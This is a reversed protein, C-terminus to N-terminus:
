SWYNQKCENVQRIFRNLDRKNTVTCLWDERMIPDRSFLDPLSCAQLRKVGLLYLIVYLILIFKLFGNRDLHMPGDRGTENVWKPPCPLHDPIYAPRNRFARLYNPYHNFEEVAFDVLEDTLYVKRLTSWPTQIACVCVNYM